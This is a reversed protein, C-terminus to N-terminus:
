SSSEPVTLCVSFLLSRCFQWSATKRISHIMVVLAFCPQPRSATARPSGCLSVVGREAMFSALDGVRYSYGWESDHWSLVKAM